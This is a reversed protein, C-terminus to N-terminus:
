VAAFTRAVGGRAGAKRLSGPHGQAQRRFASPNEGAARRFAITFGSANKFGLRRAIEGLPLDTATLWSKARMLRVEEVYNHLTRGTTQKFARQLHGRSVGCCGALEGVLVPADSLTEVYETLRRLQWPALGGCRKPEGAKTRQFYRSLEVILVTGLGDALIDSAFGPDAAEHTLRQLLRELQTSRIDACEKLNSHEWPHEGGVLQDYRETTFQCIGFKAYENSAQWQIPIDAPFFAVRRGRVFEREGARVHSLFRSPSICRSLTHVSNFNSSKIGDSGRYEVLQVSVTNGYLSAEISRSIAL